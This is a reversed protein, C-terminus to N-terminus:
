VRYFVNHEIKISIYSYIILIYIYIYIHSQFAVLFAVPFSLRIELLHVSKFSLSPNWMNQRGYNWLTDELNAERCSNNRCWHLYPNALKVRSRMSTDYHTTNKLVTVWMPLELIIIPAIQVNLLICLPTVKMGNLMKDFTCITYFVM